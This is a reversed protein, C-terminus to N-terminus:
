VVASLSNAGQRIKSDTIIQHHTVFEWTLDLFLGMEEEIM